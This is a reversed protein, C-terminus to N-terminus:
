RPNEAARASRDHAATQALAPREEARGIVRVTSGRSVLKGAAALADQFTPYRTTPARGGQVLWVDGVPVVFYVTRM